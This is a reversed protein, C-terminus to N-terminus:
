PIRKMGKRLYIGIIAETESCWGVAHGENKISRWKRTNRKGAPTM